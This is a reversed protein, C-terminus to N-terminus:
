RKSRRAVEEGAAPDAQMRGVKALFAPPLAGSFGCDVCRYIELRPNFVVTRSQCYSCSLEVKAPKVPKAAKAPKPRKRRRRPPAALVAPRREVLVVLSVVILLGILVLIWRLYSNGGVSTASAHRVGVDPRGSSPQPRTGPNHRTHAVAPPSTSRGSVLSGVLALVPQAPEVSPGAGGAPGSAAEGCGTRSNAAKLARVGRQEARQVNAGTTRLRQAVKTRSLPKNGSGLGARLALVAADYPAV